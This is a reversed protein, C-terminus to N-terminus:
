GFIRDVIEAVYNRDVVFDEDKEQKKELARILLDFYASDVGVLQEKLTDIDKMDLESVQFMIKLMQGANIHWGRKIFKRLRIISCVPYKSGIYYLQKALLSELAHQRLVVGDKKTWYNTCHVFDYNEHIKDADGYFRFIIQVKGTLSVANDSIYVPDFKGDGPKRKKLGESPIHVRVRGDDELRVEMGAAADDSKFVGVFFNAAAVVAERTSFYVDYDNVKEKLLMSAICGGTVIISDEHPELWPHAKILQKMKKSIISNIVRKNM